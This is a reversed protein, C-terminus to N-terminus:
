HTLCAAQGNFTACSYYPSEALLPLAEVMLSSKISKLSLDSLRERNDGQEVVDFLAELTNMKM